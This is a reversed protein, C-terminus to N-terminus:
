QSTTEWWVWVGLIESDGDEQHPTCAMLSLGPGYVVGFVSFLTFHAWDSGPGALFQCFGGSCRCSAMGGELSPDTGSQGTREM